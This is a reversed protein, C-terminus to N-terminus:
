HRRINQFLLSMLHIQSSLAADYHLGLRNVQQHGAQHLYFGGDHHRFSISGNTVESRRFRLDVCVDTRVPNQYGVQGVHVRLHQQAFQFDVEGLGFMSAALHLGAVEQRVRPRHDDREHHLVTLVSTKQEESKM